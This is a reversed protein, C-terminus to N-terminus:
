AVVPLRDKGNMADIAKRRSNQQKGLGSSVSITEHPLEERMGRDPPIQDDHATMKGILLPSEDLVEAFNAHM